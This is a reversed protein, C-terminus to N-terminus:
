DGGTVTMNLAGLRPVEYQNLAQGPRVPFTIDFRKVGGLEKVLNYVTDIYFYAERTITTIDFAKYIETIASTRTEERNYGTRVVLSCSLDVSRISGNGVSYNRGPSRKELLENYIAERLGRSVETAMNNGDMGWLKLIVTTIDSLSSEYGLAKAVRGYTPSSFSAAINEFDEPTVARRLTRLNRPTNQKVSLLTEEIEGGSPSAANNVTPSVSNDYIDVLSNSYNRRIVGAGIGNAATGGGYLYDLDYNGEPIKGGVDDGFILFVNGLHDFEVKFYRDDSGLYYLDESELWVIDDIVLSRVGIFETQDRDVLIKENTEGSLRGVQTDVQTNSCTITISDNSGRPWSTAESVRFLYTGSTDSFYYDVPIPITNHNGLLSLTIDCSAAQRHTPAYDMMIAHREGMNFHRTSQQACDNVAIDITRSLAHSLASQGELIAIGPDSPNRDSWEPCVDPIRAILSQYISSYNRNVLSFKKRTTLTTSM